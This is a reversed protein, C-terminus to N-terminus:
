FKVGLSFGGWWYVDKRSGKPPKFDLDYYFGNSNKNTNIPFAYARMFVGSKKPMYRLGFSYFRNDEIYNWFDSNSKYKTRGRMISYGVEVKFAKYIPFFFTTRYIYYKNETGKRNIHYYGFTKSIGGYKSDIFVREYDASYWGSVGGIDGYIINKKWL